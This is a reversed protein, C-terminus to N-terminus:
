AWYSPSYRDGIALRHVREGRRDYIWLFDQSAVVRGWRRGFFALFRGCPSWVYGCGYFHPLMVVPTGDEAITV